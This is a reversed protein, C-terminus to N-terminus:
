AAIRVNFGRSEAKSLLEATTLTNRGVVWLDKDGKPKITTLRCVPKYDRMLHRAASYALSSDVPNLPAPKPGGFYVYGRKPKNVPKPKAKAPDRKGPSSCGTERRWRKITENGVSYQFMLDRNKRHPAIQTFDDPIPKGGRNHPVPKVREMGAEALWRLVAADSATYHLVLARVTLSKALHAFGDPMPRKPNGGSM